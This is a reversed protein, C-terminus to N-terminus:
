EYWRAYAYECSRGFCILVDDRIIQLAKKKTEAKVLAYRDRNEGCVRYCVRWWMPIVTKFEIGNM